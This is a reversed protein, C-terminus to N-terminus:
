LGLAEVMRAAGKGDVQNFPAREPLRNLVFGLSELKKV